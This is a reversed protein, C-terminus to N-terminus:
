PALVLQVRHEPVFRQQAFQQLAAPTVADIYDDYHRWDNVPQGYTANLAAQMARAGNTQLAMRRAAKLRTQCRAFEEATVAGEQVRRIEADIEALVEEVAGPHTGAFFSFMGAELGVVRASRVFYALGKRERIREFLQSAMGSFLEDAVDAVYMEPSRVAVGPFAVFVVAQQRPQRVTEMGPAPGAFGPGTGPRPGHPLERLFAKLKPGLRAPDFDGTVALVTNGAVVLERHLARLAAPTVARLGEETGATEYALPHEGFFRRRLLRRGLAVPDDAQEALAALHAEREREVAPARFAPELVAGHLVELARGVDAPLVEVSLGFSNNGSFEGFSGGVSEISQAVQAATRRRTDKTLLTALMSVGGRLGPPEQVPGGLCVLRMHVNPLRRDPLLLLRAGNPLVTDTFEGMAAAAVGGGSGPARGAAAAPRPNISVTTRRAETCWTGLARRVDAAGVRALRAFYHRTYDLDGVVVEAAGLRSAQGSMTKRGDIESVIMQRVAKRLQAPTPGETALRRVTADVAATAAVRKEPECLFSVYLLGVTGPTWAYADISHVLRRRERLEQWLLSSNGHGLLLAALDLVPADPHTLGPIQWALGVRSIQVEEFLHLERPALPTPEDPLVVPALRARPDGGFCREVEARVAAPDFHGVVVVVLNNPVYRSRYYTLLDDRTVREFVSRHGIVPQRYPHERFANEFLAQALRQDPEDLYMDIERLIVDKERAVEDAPLTSHLVADALLDLAVGTHESPVDIYYVTRDFTTYANIYGGHAQVTAAIERGARRETGKFLMHELYHSLGGGLLPGEHISGTKVWVQVSCIASSHDPKLLLTLGNPLVTREVPQSWLPQLLAFDRAFSHPRVSAPMSLFPFTSAFGSAACGTSADALRHWRLAAAATGGESPSCRRGGAQL